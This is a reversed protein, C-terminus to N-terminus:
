IKKRFVSARGVVWSARGVWGRWISLRALLQSVLGLRLYFGEHFAGDTANLNIFFSDLRNFLLDHLLVLWRCESGHLLVGSFAMNKILIRSCFEM